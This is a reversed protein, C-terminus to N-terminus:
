YSGRTILVEQLTVDKIPRDRSDRPVNAIADVVNQGKVVEGFVSHKGDLWPTAKQTIFFQSGNTDPGANAMSLIGPKSHKLDPNFEDEFRYGPGGTGNGLPDGGQIMFGPIVRHFITGNYLPRKVKAGTKPDTWEKTGSALAVFNAVTKPAKDDYLLIVVDGISTKLTAYVPQKKEQSQGALANSVSIFLAIWLFTRFMNRKM